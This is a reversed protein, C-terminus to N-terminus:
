LRRVVRGQLVIQEISETAAIDALPDSGLLLWDANKGVALSGVQDDVQMLRAPHITAGRLADLTSLEAQKVLTRMERHLAEGGIIGVGPSDTAAVITVGAAYLTRVNNVVDNRHEKLHAIWGQFDAPMSFDAPRNRVALLAVPDFLKEALPTIDPQNADLELVTRWVHITSMAYLPRSRVTEMQEPSFLGDYPTHALGDVGAAIVTVADSPEGVHAIVPVNREHGAEVLARITAEQLKPVGSPIDDLTLKLIDGGEDVWENVAQQAQAPDNAYYAFERRLYWRLFWPVFEELLAVPHGGTATFHAGAVWLSPGEREGNQVSDRVDYIQGRLGGLDFISTVGSYLFTDLSRQINGLRKSWPPAGNGILHTHADVLGPIMYKGTADVRLETEVAAPAEADPGLWVIEGRRALVTTGTIWTGAELDLTSAHVVRITQQPELAVLRPLDPELSCAFVTTASALVILKYLARM